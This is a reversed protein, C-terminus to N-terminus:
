DSRALIARFVSPDASIRDVMAEVDAFNAVVDDRYGVQFPQGIGIENSAPEDERHANTVVAGARVHDGRQSPDRQAAETDGRWLCVTDHGRDIAIERRWVVAPLCNPGLVGGAAQPWVTQVEEVIPVDHVDLQDLVMRTSCGGDHAHLQEAVLRLLWVIAAATSRERSHNRDQLDCDHRTFERDWRGRVLRARAHPDLRSSRTSSLPMTM